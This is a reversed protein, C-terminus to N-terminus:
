AGCAARREDCMTTSIALSLIAYIEIKITRKDGCLFRIMWVITKRTRCKTSASQARKARSVCKKRKPGDKEGRVIFIYETWRKRTNASRVFFVDVGISEGFIKERNNNRQTENKVKRSYFSVAGLQAPTYYSKKHKNNKHSWPHITAQTTYPVPPMNSSIGESTRARVTQLKFERKACCERLVRYYFFVSNSKRLLRLSSEFLHDGSVGCLSM